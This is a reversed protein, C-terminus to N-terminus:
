VRRPARPARASNSAVAAEVVAIDRAGDAFTPYVVSEGQMARWSEAIVNRFADLYGEPHGAPVM